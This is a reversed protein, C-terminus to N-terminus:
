QVPVEMILITSNDQIEIEVENIETIEAADRKKFNMDGIRVSGEIVFIFIGNTISKVTYKLYSEKTWHGISVYSDQYIFLTGDNGTPTIISHLKNHETLFPFFKEQYRPAVNMQNPTIWIQLLTLSTTDSSNFESHTVGTGASMIQVDGSSITSSTGTSDEHSLSGSLTMTFIEMNRHSHPPFGRGPAIEDDNIVRLVGFGMNQPDYYDGFSFSHASKLWDFQASGRDESKRIKIMM